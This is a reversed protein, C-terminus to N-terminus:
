RWSRAKSLQLAIEVLRHVAPTAPRRWYLHVGILPDPHVPRWVLDEPMSDHEHEFSVSFANGAQIAQHATPDNLFSGRTLLHMETIRGGFGNARFCGVVQDFYGPSFDRPWIFLTSATLESPDLASRGALPHTRAVVAGLPEDRINVSDLEPPLEPHRALGADLRGTRVAEVSDAQWMESVRLDLGPAHREVQDMLAPLTEHAITPTFSLSLQGTDGVAARRVRELGTSVDDLISRSLELMVRGPETLEVHRTTRDLLRAGVRQELQQIQASLSQQALHLDAAALSFNLRTAVAVFSRLHRLEINEDSM